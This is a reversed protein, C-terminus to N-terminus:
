FNRYGGLMRRVAKTSERHREESVHPLVRIMRVIEANEIQAILTQLRNRRQTRTVEGREMLDVLSKAEAIFDRYMGPFDSNPIMIREIGIYACDLWERENPALENESLGSEKRPDLGFTQTCQSLYSELRAKVEVFSARQEQQPGQQACGVASLFIFVAFGKVFHSM